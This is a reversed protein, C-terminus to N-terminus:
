CTLHLAAVVKRGEAALKNYRQCAEETKGVVLEIGRESVAERTAEAVRMLGPKGQGVVLVEPQAAFVDALDEAQLKHGELRWWSSDVRDPYIIVDAHYTTGNVTIHGFSYDQIM